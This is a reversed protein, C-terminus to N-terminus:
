GLLDVVFLMLYLVISAAGLRVAAQALSRGEPEDDRMRGLVIGGAGLLAPLGTWFLPVTLLALGALGLAVVSPGQEDLDLASPVGWAFVGLTVLVILALIPLYARMGGEQALTVLAAPVAALLAAFTGIRPLDAETPIAALSARVTSLVRPTRTTVDMGTRQAVGDDLDHRL